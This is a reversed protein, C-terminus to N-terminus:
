YIMCMFCFSLGNLMRRLRQEVTVVGEFRAYDYRRLAFIQFLEDWFTKAEGSEDLETVWRNAFLDANREILTWSYPNSM